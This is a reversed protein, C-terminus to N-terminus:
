GALLRVAVFFSEIALAGLAVALVRWRRKSVASNRVYAQSSTEALAHWVGPPPQNYNLRWLDAPSGPSDYKQPRVVWLCMALCVLYASTVVFLLWRPGGDGVAALGLVVSAFGALQYGRATLGDAETLQRLVSDIGYRAIIPLSDADPQTM